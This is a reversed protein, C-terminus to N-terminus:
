YLPEQTGSFQKVRLPQLGVKGKFIVSPWHACCIGWAKQPEPSDRLLALMEPQEGAKRSWFCKRASKVERTCPLWGSIVSGLSGLHSMWGCLKDVGSYIGPFGSWAAEWGFPLMALSSFLRDPFLTMWHSMYRSFIVGKKMFKGYLGSGRCVSPAM